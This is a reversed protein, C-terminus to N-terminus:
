MYITFLRGGAAMLEFEGELEIVKKPFGHWNVESSYYMMGNRREVLFLVECGCAIMFEIGRSPRCIAASAKFPQDHRRQRLPLAM